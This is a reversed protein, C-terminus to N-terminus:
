TLASQLREEVRKENINEIEALALELVEEQPIKLETVFTGIFKKSLPYKLQKIIKSFLPKHGGILLHTVKENLAFKLSDTAVHELHKHLHDEIHRMIKDQADWTNVGAKVKQPAEDHSLELHSVAKGDVLIFMRARKRDVLLVMYIIKKM